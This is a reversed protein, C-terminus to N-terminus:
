YIKSKKLNIIRFIIFFFLLLIILLSLWIINTEWSIFLTLFLIIEFVYIWNLIFNIKNIKIKKRDFKEEDNPFFGIILSKLINPLFYPMIIFVFPTCILRFIYWFRDDFNEIVFYYFITFYTIMFVVFLVIVSFFLINVWIGKKEVKISLLNNKNFMNNLFYIRKDLFYPDKTLKLFIQVLSFSFFLMNINILIEIYDVM